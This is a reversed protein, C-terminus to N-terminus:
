FISTPLFESVKVSQVTFKLPSVMITELVRKFKPDMNYGHLSDSTHSSGTGGGYSSLMEQKIPKEPVVSDMQEAKLGMHIVSLMHEAIMKLDTVPFINFVMIHKEGGQSRISGVM